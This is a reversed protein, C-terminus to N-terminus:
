AGCASPGATAIDITYSMSQFTFFSIGIPLVISTWAITGWGAQSAVLNIQDVLFNAYKFYALLGLNVVVSLTVGSRRMWRNSEAMAKTVILGAAYDVVISIGLLIVFVGPAGRM